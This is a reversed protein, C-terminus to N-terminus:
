PPPPPPAQSTNAGFDMRMGLQSKVFAEFQALRQLIANFESRRVMPEHSTTASPNAYRRTKRVLSGLGYVHGKPCVGAADYYLQEEDISQNLTAQTHEERRRVLEDEEDKDMAKWREWYIEKQHDPISKWCYGETIMGRKFIKTIRRACVSMSLLLPSDLLIPHAEEDRKLHQQPLHYFSAASSAAPLEM